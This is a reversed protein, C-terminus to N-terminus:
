RRKRRLMALAGLALAAFVSPEPVPAVGTTSQIFGSYYGLDAGIGYGGADYFNGGEQNQFNLQSGVGSSVAVITPLVGGQNVFWGGGSDGSALGGERSTATMSGLDNHAATGDDLDYAYSAFFNVNDFTGALLADVTNTATARGISGGPATGISASYGGIGVLTTLTGNVGGSGNAAPDTGTAVQGYGYYHSFTQSVQVLAIDTLGVLGKPDNAANPVNVVSTITFTGDPNTYTTGVNPAVHNATVFWHPAIPSGSFGNAMTGMYQYVSTATDPTGGIIAFSSAPLALAAIALAASRSRM